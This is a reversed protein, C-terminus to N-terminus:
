YAGTAYDWYKFQKWQLEAPFQEYASDCNRLGKWVLAETLAPAAVTTQVVGDVLLSLNTGDSRVSVKTEKGVPLAQVGAAATVGWLVPVNDLLVLDGRQPTVAETDTIFLVAKSYVKPLKFSCEWSYTGCIRPTVGRGFKTPGTGTFSCWHTGDSRAVSMPATVRALTLGQQAAGAGGGFHIRPMPKAKYNMGNFLRVKRPRMFAPYRYTPQIVLDAVGYPIEHNEISDTTLRLDWLKNLTPILEHTTRVPTPLYVRNLNRTCQELHQQVQAQNLAYDFYSFEGIFHSTPLVYAGNRGFHTVIFDAVDTDTVSCMALEGNIYLYCRKARVTITIYNFNRYIGSYADIQNWLTGSYPQVWYQFTTNSFPTNVWGTTVANGFFGVHTSRSTDTHIHLFSITYESGLTFPKLFPYAGATNLKYMAVGNTNTWGTGGCDPFKTHDPDSGQNELSATYSNTNTPIWGDDTPDVPGFRWWHVPDRWPQEVHADPIDNGYHIIMPAYRLNNSGSNPNLNAILVFEKDKRILGDDRFYRYDMLAFGEDVYPTIESTPGNYIVSCYLLNFDTTGGASTWPLGDVAGLASALTAANAASLNEWAWKNTRKPITLLAATSAQYDIGHTLVGANYLTRSISGEAGPHHWPRPNANIAHMVTGSADTSVSNHLKITLNGTWWLSRDPNAKFTVSGGLALTVPEDLIWDAPMPFGLFHGLDVILDRTTLVKEVTVKLGAGTLALSAAHWTGWDVRDWTIGMSFGQSTFIAAANRSSTLGLAAPTTVVDYTADRKGNWATKYAVRADIRLYELLDRVTAM